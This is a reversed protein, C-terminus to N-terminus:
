EVFAYSIALILCYKVVLEGFVAVKIVWQKVGSSSHTEWVTCVSLYESGSNKPCLTLM